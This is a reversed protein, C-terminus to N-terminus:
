EDKILTFSFTDKSQDGISIVILVFLHHFLLIGVKKSLM